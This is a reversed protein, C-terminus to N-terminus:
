PLICGTCNSVNDNTRFLVLWDLASIAVASLPNDQKASQSAESAASGLNAIRDQYKTRVCESDVCKNREKMWERQQQKLAAPDVNGNLAKSYAASLDEDLKSLEPNGCILYEVKTRAKACDFSAAHVPLALALCGFVIWSIRKM